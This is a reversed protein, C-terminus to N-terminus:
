STAGAPAPDPTARANRGTIIGRGAMLFVVPRAFLYMIVLDLVSAIGLMLAFGRVPGVALFYLIVAAALTVTNGALNTRWASHHATVVATRVTKGLKIEDRIREAFIIASDAAIGISVVIGAVGALTLAFGVEGLAAIIGALLVGFLVLEFIAVLGLWRYFVVLWLGVLVLGILGALLGSQLSEEGLTPSITRFNEPAALTLPLAGARLLLSLDDAEQQQEERSLGEGTTISASGGRIGIGCLVESGRTTSMSTAQRVVGDVVIALQGPEGEDRECALRSTLEAFDEGGPGDFELGVQYAQAGSGIATFADEIAEGTLEVPGVRFKTPALEGTSPDLAGTEELEGCLVGAQRDPLPEREDPALTCDPGEEYGAAGPAIRETVARFTLQATTGILEQVRDADDIGPLQVHIDSGQRTIDPEAVGLADVRDRIVEITQDIIEDFDDPEEAGAPLEPTYIASIGGQLDLGLSPRAGLGVYVGAAISVLLMVVLSVVLGRKNM